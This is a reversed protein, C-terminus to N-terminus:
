SLGYTSKLLALHAIAKQLKQEDTEYKSMFAKSVYKDNIKIQVFYGHIEKEGIKSTRKYVNPPLDNDSKKLKGGVARNRNSAAKQTEFKIKNVDCIPKNDGVMFNYGFEPNHTKYKTIYKTENEKLHKLGCIKITEVTWDKQETKRIADYFAPCETSSTKNTSFANSFHRRMRDFAGHKRNKEVGNSVFSRSKGIYSKNGDKTNTAKYIIGTDVTEIEGVLDPNDIVIFECKMVRKPKTKQEVDHQSSDTSDDQSKDQSKKIQKWKTDSDVDSANTHSSESDSKCVSVDDKVTQEIKSSM